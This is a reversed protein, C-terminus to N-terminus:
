FLFFGKRDTGQTFDVLTDKNPRFRELPNTFFRDAGAGGTLSDVAFDLGGNLYDDGDEGNLTDAGFDGFLRDNGAGGNITDNGFGGSLVDSGADGNITDNGLLGYIFNRSTDALVLDEITGPENGAILTDNGWSGLITDSGLGGVVTNALRDLGASLYDDGLGGKITDAGFGGFVKDNGAGADVVSAIRTFNVFYDNGDDGTFQINGTVSSAAFETVTGNERVRFNDGRRIVSVIDNRTTGVIVLNGAVVSATPTAREELRDLELRARPANTRAKM